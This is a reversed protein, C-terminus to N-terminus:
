YRGRVQIEKAQDGQTQQSLRLEAELQRNRDLLSKGLQAALQLDAVVVVVVVTYSM